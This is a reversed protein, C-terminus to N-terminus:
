PGSGVVVGRLEGAKPGVTTLWKMNRVFPGPEKPPRVEVRVDRSEGPGVWAPVDATLCSCDSQAVIVQIPEGTRNTFTVYAAVPVEPRCQGVSVLVPDIGLVQGPSATGLSGGSVIWFGAAGVATLATAGMAIQGAAWDAPQWLERPRVAVVLLVAISDFAMVALPNIQANGLCGCSHEGTVVAAGSVLTFTAFLALAVWRAARLGYGSVFWLGLVIEIAILAPKVEARASWGSVAYAAASETGSAKLMAAIM